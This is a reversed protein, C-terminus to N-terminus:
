GHRLVPPRGPHPLLHRPRRPPDHRRLRRGPAVAPTASASPTCSRSAASRSSTRSSPGSAWRAARAGDLRGHGSWVLGGDAFLAPAVAGLRVLGLVTTQLDAVVPAACSSRGSCRARASPTAATAACASPTTWRSRGSSRCSCTSTTSARSASTTRRSSSASSPRRAARRRLPADGGLLPLAPSTAYALLDPRAFWRDAGLVPAGFPRACARAPGTSRRSSTTATPGSSSTPWGSSSTRGRARRPRSCRTAPRRRPRHLHDLNLPSAYAYRLRAGALVDTYPRDIVDLPLTASVDGGTLDEVLVSNGYFSSPSPSATSTWRSRRRSSATSTSSCCSPSPSPSRSRSAPSSCSRTSASRSSSSRTPSSATTTTPPTRTPCRCRSRTRSTGCRATRTARAHRAVPRARHRDPDRAAPPPRDVRRLGAARRAAGAAVTPRRAADVVYIRDRRKTESALLM